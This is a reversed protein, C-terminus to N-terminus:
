QQIVKNQGIKRNKKQDESITENRKLWSSKGEIEGHDVDKKALLSLAKEDGNVLSHKVIILTSWNIKDNSWLLLEFVKSECDQRKARADFGNLEDKDGRTKRMSNKTKRKWISFLRTLNRQTGLWTPIAPFSRATKRSKETLIKM